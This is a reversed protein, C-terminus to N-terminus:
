SGGALAETYMPRRDALRIWGKAIRYILWVANAALILYGIGILATVSGVIGWLLVFWFTRIQWRWHSELWTGRVEERKVYSMIVAVVFTIGVLFSAAQMAYVAHAYTIQSQLAESRSM